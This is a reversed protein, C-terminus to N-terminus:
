FLEGFTLWYFVIYSGALIMLLAGVPQSYVLTRRLVNVLTGKFLAISITLIMIVTGMGIAYLLFQALASGIDTSALSTGVVIM